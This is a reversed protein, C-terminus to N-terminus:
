EGMFSRHQLEQVDYNDGSITSVSVVGPVDLVEEIYHDELFRNWDEENCTLAYVYGLIGKYDYSSKTIAFIMKNNAYKRKAEEISIIEKSDLIEYM